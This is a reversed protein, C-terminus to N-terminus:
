TTGPMRLAQRIEGTWRAVAESTFDSKRVVVITWGRSALWQRRSLDHAVQEPTSHDEVGDFEAGVKAEEYGLDIRYRDDVWIQLEPVPLGADVMDMRTWSEPPSEARPDALEVLRRLQIVGRRGWFKPLEALMDDRQVDCVRMFGDLAALAGRPRLDAGLDLATRLPTTLRVGDITTIDSSLLERRRGRCGEHRMRSGDPAAVTEIPPLWLREAWDYADVGYVWAALRDSVVLGPRLVLSAAQIRTAVSNALSRSQYVGKLVRVLQQGEVFQTIQKRTFGLDSAERWSFPRQPLRNIDM